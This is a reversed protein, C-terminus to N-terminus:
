RRPKKLRRVGFVDFRPDTSLLPLNNQINTSIPLYISIPDHFLDFVREKVPKLAVILAVPTRKVLDFLQTKAEFMTAEAV